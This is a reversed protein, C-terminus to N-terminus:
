KLLDNRLLHNTNKKASVVDWTEAQYTQNPRSVEDHSSHKLQLLVFLLEM